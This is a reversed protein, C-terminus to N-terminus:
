SSGMLLTRKKATRKAKVAAARAKVVDVGTKTTSKSTTSSTGM